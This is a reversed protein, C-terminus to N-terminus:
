DYSREGHERQVQVLGFIYERIKVVTGNSFKYDGVAERFTPDNGIVVFTRSWAVTLTAIGKGMHLECSISM